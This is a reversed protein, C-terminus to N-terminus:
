AAPARARVAAALATADLNLAVCVIAIPVDVAADLEGALWQQALARVAPRTRCRRPVLGADLLADWLIRAYLARVGRSDASVERPGHWQAPRLCAEALLPTPILAPRAPM